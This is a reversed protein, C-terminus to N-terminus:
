ERPGRGCTLEIGIVLRNNGSRLRHNTRMRFMRGRPHVRVLGPQARAM